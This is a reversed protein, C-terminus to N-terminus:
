DQCPLGATGIVGFAKSDGEIENSKEEVAEQGLVRANASGWASVRHLPNKHHKREHSGRATKGDVAIVEKPIVERVAGLGDMFCRQFEKPSLRAIVYAIGDHSPIGKKLPVFQRLWDLTNHGFEEMAEWGQAGSLTACVTLVIIDM